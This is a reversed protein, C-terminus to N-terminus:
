VKVPNAQAEEVTLLKPKEAHVIEINKRRDTGNQDTTALSADKQKNGEVSPPPPTEQDKEHSTESKGEDDTELLEDLECSFASLEEATLKNHNELCVEVQHVREDLLEITKKLAKKRDKKDVLQIKSFSSAM